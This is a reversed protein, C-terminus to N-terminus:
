NRSNMKEDFRNWHINKINSEKLVRRELKTMGREMFTEFSGDVAKIENHNDAIYKGLNRMARKSTRGFYCDFTLTGFPPCFIAGIARTNWYKIFDNYSNIKNRPFQGEPFAGEGKAFAEYEARVNDESYFRYRKPVKYEKLKANQRKINEASINSLFVETFGGM